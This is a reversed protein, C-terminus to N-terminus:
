DPLRNMLGYIKSYKEELYDLFDEPTFERGTIDRIWEASDLRDAKKWVNEKMWMNIMDFRGDAILKEVDMEKKMRNYYMTNYMNGLAYTTFYGFGSAWHVDQLIGDRDSDPTIGLYEQYKSNWMAPLEEMAVGDNIVAKEIEYRIIIHFTYTFEDAETRILSPKVTNMAEFFEKQTVGNMVQPFVECVKPYIFNLFAESRGILNEYFRSVSEHQGLSKEDNIFHDHDAEPLNQEFLAHGCEHIISYMSSYFMDPYYHTTLRVDNRAVGMTFPHESTTFNGRNFDYGLTRLLWEAMEKQQAETVQRSLFDTRIMRKEDVSRPSAMIKKLLPVLREKCRDFAKDLTATTMGREFIELLNDYPVPKPEAHLSIQKLNVDRVERLSDAFLSFNEEKRAKSWNVFARNFILDFEHNMEPTINKTRLYERHLSEALIRDEECLENRGQYLEEAAQIFEPAKILKFAENGLFAVIEGQEEMGDPPCITEQDYQIVNCAHSYVDAKKLTLNVFDLSKKLNENM